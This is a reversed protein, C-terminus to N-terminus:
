QSCSVTSARWFPQVGGTKSALTSLSRLKSRM